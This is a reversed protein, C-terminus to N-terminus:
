PPGAMISRTAVDTKPTCPSRTGPMAYAYCVGRRTASLSRIPPSCSSLLVPPWGLPVYERARYCASRCVARYLGAALVCRRHSFLQPIDTPLVYTSKGVDPQNSICEFVVPCGAIPAGWLLVNLAYLGMLQPEFRVDYHTLGSRIHMTPKLEVTEESQPQSLSVVM